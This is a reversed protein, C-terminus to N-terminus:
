NDSDDAGLLPVLECEVIGLVVIVDELSFALVVQQHVGFYAFREGVGGNVELV